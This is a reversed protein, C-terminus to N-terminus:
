DLAGMKELQKCLATADERTLPKGSAAADHRHQAICGRVKPDLRDALASVLSYGALVLLVAFLAVSLNIEIRALTGKRM